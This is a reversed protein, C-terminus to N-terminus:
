IIKIHMPYTIQLSKNSNPSHHLNNSNNNSNYISKNNNILIKNIIQMIIILLIDMKCLKLKKKSQCNM